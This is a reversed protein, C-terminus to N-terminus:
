IITNIEEDSLGRNKLYRKLLNIKESDLKYGALLYLLNKLNPGIRQRNIYKIVSEKDPLTKMNFYYVYFDDYSVGAKYYCQAKAYTRKNTCLKLAEEAGLTERVAERFDEDYSVESLEKNRLAKELEKANSLAEKYAVNKMTEYLRDQKDKEEQSVDSAALEDQLLKIEQIENQAKNLYTLVGKSVVDGDTKNFTMQEKYSFFDSSLKNKYVPDTVFQGKFVGKIDAGSKSTLPLVIDGIVGTMQDLVYEVKLPSINFLKGLFKSIESTEGTYQESPRTNDWKRGVIEGGYWTKNNAADYIPKFFPGSVDVGIANWNTKLMQIFDDLDTEEGRIFKNAYVIDASFAQQIFGKPLRIFEGDGTKILYYNSKFTDSLNQYDDDNAYILEQIIQPAIGLLLMKIILAAWEKASKPSIFARINRAAGEINATLFPIYQNLTATYIGKRSFNLTIENADVLAVRIATEHSKGEKVLREYTSLFEAFRTTHEMIENFNEYHRALERIAKRPSSVDLEKYFSKEGPGKNSDRLTVSQGSMTEYVEFLETKTVVQTLARGWNKLLTPVSNKTYIVATQLDKLPNRFWSFFPNWSTMLNRSVGAVKRVAALLRSNEGIQKLTGNLSNLSEAIEPSVRMTIQEGNRYAYITQGEIQVRSVEIEEGIEHVYHATEVSEIGGVDPNATYSDYMQLILDNMAKFRHVKKIQSETSLFIDQIALNSGKAEHLGTSLVRVSGDSNMAQGILVRFEPVYHPKSRKWYEKDAETIQQGQVRMDLIKDHIKYIEKTWEDFDSVQERIQTLRENIQEKTLLSGTYKEGPATEKIEAESISEGEMIRDYLEVHSEKLRNLEEETLTNKSYFEGFVTKPDHSSYSEGEDLLSEFESAEIIEGSTIREALEPHKEQLQELEDGYISHDDYTRQGRELEDLLSLGEQVLSNVQDFKMGKSDAYAKMMDIIGNKGNYLGKTTREIHPKGDEVKIEGFGNEVASSAIGSSARVQRILNNVDAESMGARKLMRIVASANDLFKNCLSDALASYKQKKITSVERGSINHRKSTDPLKVEGEARAVAEVLTDSDAVVEELAERVDPNSLDAEVESAVYNVVDMAVNQRVFQERAEGELGRSDAVTSWRDVTEQEAINNAGEVLENSQIVMSASEAAMSSSEISATEDLVLSSNDIMMSIGTDTLNEQKVDLKNREAIQRLAKNKSEGYEAVLDAETVGMKEFKAMVEDSVTNFTDYAKNAEELLNKLRTRDQENYEESELANQIAERVDIGEEISDFNDGVMDSFQQMVKGAKENLEKSAESLESLNNYGEIGVKKGNISTKNTRYSKIGGMVGGAIGGAVFSTALGGWFKGSTYEEGLDLDPEYTIKKLLPNAADSMVEELGEAVFNGIVQGAMSNLFKNGVNTKRLMKGALGTDIDAGYGGVLETGVEVAGTMLGYLSASHIDAGEQLGEQTGQGAASVGLAAYGAVTAAVSSGGTVIGLVVQPVLQGIANGVGLAVDGFWGTENELAGKNYTYTTLWDNYEEDSLQLQFLGGWFDSQFVGPTKGQIADAVWYIPAFADAMAQWSDAIRASYDTKIFNNIDTTDAGSWDMINSVAMAGFDVLGEFVSFLGHWVATGFETFGSVLNDWWSRSEQEQVAQYVTPKFSDVFNGIGSNVDTGMNALQTAEGITVPSDSSLKANNLGKLFEATSLLSNPM